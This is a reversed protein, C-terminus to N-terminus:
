APEQGTPPKRGAFGARKKHRPKRKDRPKGSGPDDSNPADTAGAIPGAFPAPTPGTHRAGEVPEPVSLEGPTAALEEDRQRRRQSTPCVEVLPCRTVEGQRNRVTVSQTPVSHGIVVGEGIPSDVRDGVAPAEKKFDAYLPHEYKLCCMLKGCQGQIALPNPSLDQVKALRLGVPEFNTLFTSCCLDRGCSGIGGSIRTADRSAVQRLDIRAHITRALDSILARFDVRGPATFYIAAMVDFDESRDIWDVGVVKMPLGHQAILAKAVSTAEARHRRNEEDRRLDADSARGACMPLGVLKQSDVFEPAWVVQAVEPGHDTPYLVKEGVRWQQEGPDLYHLQGHTEFTVAMVRAM